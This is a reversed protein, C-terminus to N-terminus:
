GKVVKYMYIHDTYGNELRVGNPLSGYEVFGFKQYMKKALDNNSFVGLTIIELGTLNKEAEEIVLEMLKSGIGAGRFGKAISIGLVGIHKEIKDKMDIGSIGILKGECFVLLLVAHKQSIKELQSNLYKIEEELSVREGQYRIFTREKSLTNIYEWMAQVDDKKPYRIIIEKDQFNSKHVIKAKEMM